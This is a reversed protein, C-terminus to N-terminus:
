ICILSVVKANAKMNDFTILNFYIKTPTIKSHKECHYIHTIKM